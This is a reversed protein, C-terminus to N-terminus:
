FKLTVSLLYMSPEEVLGAKKGVEMAALRLLSHSDLEQRTSNSLSKHENLEGLFALSGQRDIKFLPSLLHNKVNELATPNKNLGERVWRQWLITYDINSSKSDSSAKRLQGFLTVLFKGAAPSIDPMAMWDFVGSVFADWYPFHLIEVDISTPSFGEEVEYAEMLDQASISLKSLFCDLSKFAPKVLPQAARHHITSLTRKLIAKKISNAAERDPHLAILSSTLELVQRMSRNQNKESWEIFFNFLGLCTSESIISGKVAPSQSSRCQEIFHCLKLCANGSAHRPQAANGLLEEFKANM